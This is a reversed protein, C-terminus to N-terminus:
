ITPIHKRLMLSFRPPRRAAAVEGPPQAAAFTPTPPQGRRGRYCLRPVPLRTAGQQPAASSKSRRKQGSALQGRLLRGALGARPEPIDASADPKAPRRLPNDVSKQEVSSALLNQERLLLPLDLRQLALDPM